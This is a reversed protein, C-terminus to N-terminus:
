IQNENRIWSRWFSDVLNIICIISYIAHSTLDSLMNNILGNFLLVFSLPLM